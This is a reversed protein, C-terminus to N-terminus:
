KKNIFQSRLYETNAHVSNSDITNSASNRLGDSRMNNAVRNQNMMPQGQPLRQFWGIPPITSCVDSVVLTDSDSLKKM